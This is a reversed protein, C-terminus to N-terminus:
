AERKLRARAGRLLFFIVMSILVWVPQTVMWLFADDMLTKRNMEGLSFQLALGPFTPGLPIALFFILVQSAFFRETWRASASKSSMLLGFGVVHALLLVWEYAYRVKFFGAPRFNRVMIEFHEGSLSDNWGMPRGASDKTAFPTLGIGIRLTVATVFVVFSLVVLVGLWRNMRTENM